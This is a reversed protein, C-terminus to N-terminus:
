REKDMSGPETRTEGNKSVEECSRIVNDLSNVKNHEEGFAENLCKVMLESFGEYGNSFNKVNDDFLMMVVDSDDEYQHEEFMNKKAYEVIKPNELLEYLNVEIGKDRIKVVDLHEALLEVCKDVNPFDDGYLTKEGPEKNYFYFESDVDKDWCTVEAGPERLALYEKLKM